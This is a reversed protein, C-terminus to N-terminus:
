NNEKESAYTTLKLNKNRLPISITFTSGVGIQSDVEIMGKHMMIAKNAMALGLGHGQGKSSYFPRFITKIKDDDIGSGNDSIVIKIKDKLKTQILLKGENEMSEIANNIINIFARFLLQYDGYIKPITVDLKKEVEIGSFNLESLIDEIIQNVDLFQTHMVMSKTIDLTRKIFDDLKQSAFLIENSYKKLEDNEKIKKNLGEALLHIGSIPNKLDHIIFTAFEGMMALNESSITENIDSKFSIHLDNLTNLLLNYDDNLQIEASDVSNNMYFNKILNIIKQINHSWTRLILYALFITLIIISVGIWPLSYKDFYISSIFLLAEIFSIFAAFYILLKSQFPLKRFIRKQNNLYM